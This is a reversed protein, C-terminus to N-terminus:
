TTLSLRCRPLYKLVGLAGLALIRQAITGHCQTPGGLTNVRDVIVQSQGTLRSLVAITELMQDALDGEAMRADHQAELDGTRTM